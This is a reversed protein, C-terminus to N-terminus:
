PRDARGFAIRGHGGAFIALRAVPRKLVLRKEIRNLRRKLVARREAL